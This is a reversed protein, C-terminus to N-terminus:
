GFGAGLYLALLLLCFLALALGFGRRWAPAAALGLYSNLIVRAKAWALCLIMAGALLALSPPWHWLTIATSGLSLGVLWLWAMFIPDRLM